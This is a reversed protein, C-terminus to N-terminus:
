CQPRMESTHLTFDQSTEEKLNRNLKQVLMLVRQYFKDAITPSLNSKNKRWEIGQFHNLINIIKLLYPMAEEIM